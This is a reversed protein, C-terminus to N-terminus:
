RADNMDEGMTSLIHRASRESGLTRVLHPRIAAATAPDTHWPAPTDRLHLAVASAAQIIGGHKTSVQASWITDEGGNKLPLDLDLSAWVSPRVLFCDGSSTPILTDHERLGHNRPPMRIAGEGAKAPLLNVLSASAMSVDYENASWILQELCNFLPYVDDDVFWLWAPQYFSALEGLYKRSAAVRSYGPPNGDGDPVTLQHVEIGGYVVLANMFTDDLIHSRPGQSEDHVIIVEPPRSQNVIGLLSGLAKESRISPVCAVVREIM